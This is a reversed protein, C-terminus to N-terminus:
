EDGGVIVAPSPVVSTANSSLKFPDFCSDQIQLWTKSKSSKRKLGYM